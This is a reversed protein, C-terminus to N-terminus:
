LHSKHFFRAVALASPIAENDNITQRVASQNTTALNARARRKRRRQM